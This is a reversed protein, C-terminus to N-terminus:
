RLPVRAAFFAFDWTGQASSFIADAGFPLVSKAAM